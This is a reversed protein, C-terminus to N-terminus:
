TLIQIGLLLRGHNKLVKPSVVISNERLANTHSAEGREKKFHM